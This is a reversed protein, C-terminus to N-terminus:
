NKYVNAAMKFKAMKSMKDILFLVCNRKEQDEQYKTDSDLSLDIKVSLICTLSVHSM